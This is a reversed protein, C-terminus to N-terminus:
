HCIFIDPKNEQELVLKIKKKEKSLYMFSYFTGHRLMAVKTLVLLRFGKRRGKVMIVVISLCNVCLYESM